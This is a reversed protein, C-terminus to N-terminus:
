KGQENKREAVPRPARNFVNMAAEAGETIMVRVAEAANKEGEDIEERESRSFRGLVFRVLDGGKPKHGVGIRIRHFEEAHLHAIINKLGNHGGASGKTRIRLRGVDLNIDDCIVILDRAPDCKYFQVASYVSEGSNNMYTQPKVLLAKQGEIVGSGCYAMHRRETVSIGYRDALLDITEFGVNHRTKEYEKTPNGLGVIIYM